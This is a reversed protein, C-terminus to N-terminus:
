LRSRLYTMMMNVVGTTPTGLRRVYYASGAEWSATDRTGKNAGGDVIVFGGSPLSFKATTTNSPVNTFDLTADTLNQFWIIKTYLPIVGLLTWNVGSTISVGNVRYMFDWDILTSEM